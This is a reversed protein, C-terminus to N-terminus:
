RAAGLSGLWKRLVLHQGGGRLAEPSVRREESRGRPPKGLRLRPAAEQEDEGDAKAACRAGAHCGESEAGSRAFAPAPPPLRVRMTDGGGSKSDPADAM